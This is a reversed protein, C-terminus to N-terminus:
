AHMPQGLELMVYNTVDIALGLARVGATVLRRQMWEPSPAAPDIGTVLRAAFRDCGVRDEVTVPWAPTKTGKPAKALGPDTFQVGFGHALERALGRVSMQYGRDPTIEVDVIIDDLGVYPRADEGPTAGSDPDLVLIGTHDDSIALERGSCIMGNSNHGYTKRASIQFGGPLVGGPLIVAVLAGVEFNTAGCVIEQPEGTGNAKGVDVTCFRIPKKFGTLDEITLVRGVVLDGQVTTAQDVVSEVEIGLNNLTLDLQEATLDAPLDVYERLWSLGVRM